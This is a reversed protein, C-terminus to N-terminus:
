CDLECDAGCIDVSIVAVVVVADFGVAVDSGVNDEATEEVM